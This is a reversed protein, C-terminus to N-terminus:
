LFKSGDVKVVIVRGRQIAEYRPAVACVGGFYFTKQYVKEGLIPGSIKTGELLIPGSIEVAEAM